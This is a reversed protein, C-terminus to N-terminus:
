GDSGQPQGLPPLRQGDGTGEGSPESATEPCEPAGALTSETPGRGARRLERRLLFEIQANLSRLDDEAWRRLQDMLQPDIRLLFSDRKAM